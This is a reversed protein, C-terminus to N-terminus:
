QVRMLDGSLGLRAGTENVLLWARGAMARGVFWSSGLLEAALVAGSEPAPVLRSGMVDPDLPEPPDLLALVEEYPVPCRDLVRRLDGDVQEQPVLLTAGARAAILHGFARFVRGSSSFTELNELLIM